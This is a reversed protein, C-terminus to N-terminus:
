WDFVIDDLLKRDSEDPSHPINAINLLLGGLDGVGQFAMWLMPPVTLRCYNQPSIVVEQFRETTFSGPRDDYLVFRISGVPVVLNLTMQRHRKWPKIVTPVIKSFYAEGFGAYGPDNGRMAHLVNGGPTVIEKLPTLLVGDLSSVIRNVM